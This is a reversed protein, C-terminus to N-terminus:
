THVANRKTKMVRDINSDTDSVVIQANTGRRIEHFDAERLDYLVILLDRSKRHLSQLLELKGFLSCPGCRRPFHSM